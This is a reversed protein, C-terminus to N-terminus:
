RGSLVTRGFRDIAEMQADRTDGPLAVSVWTVGIAELESISAIVREEDVPRSGMSLGEPIFCVTLPETRGISEAHERAYDLAM